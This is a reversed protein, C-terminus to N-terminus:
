RGHHNYITFPAASLPADNDDDKFDDSIAVSHRRSADDYTQRLSHLQTQTDILKERSNELAQQLSAILLRAKKTDLNEGKSARKSAQMPDGGMMRVQHLLSSTAGEYFDRQLRVREYASKYRAAADKHKSSPNTDDLESEDSQNSKRRRSASKKALEKRLTHNRHSQESHQRQTDYMINLRRRVSEASGVGPLSPSVTTSTKAQSVEYGETLSPRRYPTPTHPAQPSSQPLSFCEPPSTVSATPTASSHVLTRGSSQSYVDGQNVQASYDYTDPALTSAVSDRRGNSIPPYHLPYPQNYPPRTHTTTVYASSTYDTSHYSPTPTANPHHSTYQLGSELSGETFAEQHVAAYETAPPGYPPPGPPTSTAYSTSPAMEGVLPFSPLHSPHPQPRPQSFPTNHTAPHFPSQLTNHSVFQSSANDATDQLMSPFNSFGNPATASPLSIAFSAPPTFDQSPSIDTQSDSSSLGGYEPINTSLFVGQNSTGYKELGDTSAYTTVPQSQYTNLYDDQDVSRHLRAQAVRHLLRSTESTSYPTDHLHTVPQSRLALTSTMTNLLPRLQPPFSILHLFPAIRKYTNEDGPKFHPM